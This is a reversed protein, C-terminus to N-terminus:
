FRFYFFAYTLLCILLILGVCIPVLTIMGSLILSFLDKKELPRKAEEERILEDMSPLPEEQKWNGKGHRALEADLAEQEPDRGESRLRRDRSWKMARDIKRQLIM